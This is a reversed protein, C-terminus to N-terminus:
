YFVLTTNIMFSEIISALKQYQRKGFLTNLVKKETLCIDFEKALLGKKFFKYQLENNKLLNQHLQIGSYLDGKNYENKFLVKGNKQYFLYQGDRKGEKDVFYSSRLQGDPYYTQFYGKPITIQNSDNFYSLVYYDRVILSIHGNRHFKLLMQNTNTSVTNLLNLEIRKIQKNTNWLSYTLGINECSLFCPGVCDYFNETENTDEIYLIQAKSYLCLGLLFISYFYKM